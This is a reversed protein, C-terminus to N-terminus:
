PTKKIIKYCRAMNRKIVSKRVTCGEEFKRPVQEDSSYIETSLELRRKRSVENLTVINQPSEAVNIELDICRASIEHRRKGPSCM